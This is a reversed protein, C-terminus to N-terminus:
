QAHPVGEEQIAHLSAYMGGLALLQQHTGHEVIAGNDLVIIEDAHQVASLRHAIILTTQGKRISKIQEIIQKETVADVASLSDDMILIPSHKIFGRALSTRQRQGGSLTVGREGLRTEYGESFEEITQHMQAQGAADKVKEISAARNSFAINDRITTSFLFGDQPVYAINTRLSEISIDFIDHEGIRISHKPPNYMRLLLKALTTKGSGTKGVIGLTHGAPLSITIDQLAPTSSDPYHFTLDRIEIAIPRKPLSITNPSDKIDPVEALLANLRDASARSRHTM